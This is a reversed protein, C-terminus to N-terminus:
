YATSHPKFVALATRLIIRIDLLLSWSRIYLVDHRARNRIDRASKVEGRFGRVQALGTVGPKVFRRTGYREFYVQFDDEHAAMHPRPGVVSMHGLLVNIFQPFEDISTKRLLGSGPFFRDDDATAQRSEDDNAVKMTRFKFIKFTRNNAGMREQVFFMPGPSYRRHLFWVFVMMPPLVLTIAILAVSRDFVAKVFTNFTNELPSPPPTLMEIEGVREVVFRRGKCRSLELPIWTRHGRREGREILYNSVEMRYYYASVVLLDIELGQLAAEVEAITADSEITIIEDVSFAASSTTMKAIVSSTWDQPGVVVTRLAWSDSRKRLLAILERFWFRNSLLLLFFSFVSYGLLFGRAIRQDRSFVLFVLLAITMVSAQRMTVRWAVRRSQSMAFRLHEPRTSVELTFAAMIIALCKLYPIFPIEQGYLLGLVLFLVLLYSLLLLAGQVLAHAQYLNSERTSVM